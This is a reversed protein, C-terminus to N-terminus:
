RQSWVTRGLATHITSAWKLTSHVCSAQLAPLIELIETVPQNARPWIGRAGLTLTEFRQTKAPYKRALAERFKPTDYYRRKREHAQGLNVEGEWCVQIDTIVITNEQHILLDPKFLTEDEHRVHPEEEVNWKKKCHATIKKAVENHRQVRPWHTAPCSQLM